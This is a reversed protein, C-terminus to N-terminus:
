SLFDFLEARTATCTTRLAVVALQFALKALLVLLHLADLLLPLLPFALQGFLFFDVFLLLSFLLSELQHRLESVNILVGRHRAEVFIPEFLAVVGDALFLAVVLGINSNSTHTDGFFLALDHVIRIRSGRCKQRIVLVVLLELDGYITLKHGLWQVQLVAVSDEDTQM